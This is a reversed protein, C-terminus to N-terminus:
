HSYLPIDHVHVNQGGHRSLIEIAKEEQSPSRLHVWLIMGGSSLQSQIEDKHHKAIYRAMISGLAAGGSGALVAAAIATPITGGSAITLVTGTVAAVYFPVGILASEAENMVERPVFTARPADPDSARAHSSSDDPRQYIHAFKEEVASESSLISMEHQMFGNQQLADIADQLDDPDHFVAVAEHIMPSAANQPQIGVYPTKEIKEFM